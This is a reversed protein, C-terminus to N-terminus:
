DGQQTTRAIKSSAIYVLIAKVEDFDMQRWFARM